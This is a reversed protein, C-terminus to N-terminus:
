SSLRARQKEELQSRDETMTVFADNARLRANQTLALDIFQKLDPLSANFEEGASKFLALHEAYGCVADWHERGIQLFDGDASPVPQNRLLDITVTYVSDPVPSCAVLNLGAVAILNPQAPTGSQWSARYTDLDFVSETNVPQDQVLCAIPAMATKAAAVGQQWRENCYKARAPDRAPGDKQLLDALAGFKVVFSFDDPIGLLVGSGDLTAGTNVTITELTGNDSPIPALQVSLPPTDSISYVKPLPKASAKWSAYFFDLADRSERWLTSYASSVGDIWAIRRIDVIDFSSSTLAVIGEAPSSVATTNRTLTCGTENLFQDRRRQLATLIDQVTFMESGTWTAGTPPEILQYEIETLLQLDTVTYNRYGLALASTLVYWQQNAVTSFSDRDKYFQALSNWTRLAETIYIGLEADTWFVKSPDSLRAALENRAADFRLWSYSLAM